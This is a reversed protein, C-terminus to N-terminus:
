KFGGLVRTALMEDYFLNSFGVGEEEIRLRLSDLM